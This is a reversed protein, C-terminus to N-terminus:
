LIEGSSVQKSGRQSVVLVIGYIAIMWLANYGARCLAFLLLAGLPLRMVAGLPLVLLFSILAAAVVGVLLHTNAFWRSVQSAALGGLLGLAVLLFADRGCLAADILGAGTGILMGALPGAQLGAAVGMLLLPGPPGGGMGAEVGAAVWLGFVWCLSTSLRM